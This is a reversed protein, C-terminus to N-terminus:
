DRSRSRMTRAAAGMDMFGVLTTGDCSLNNAGGDTYQLGPWSFDTVVM